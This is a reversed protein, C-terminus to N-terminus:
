TWIQIYDFLLCMFFSSSFFNFSKHMYLLISQSQCKAIRQLFYNPLIEHGYPPCQNKCTHLPLSLTPRKPFDNISVFFTTSSSPYFYSTEKNLLCPITGDVFLCFVKGRRLEALLDSHCNVTVQSQLVPWKWSEKKLMFLFLSFFSNSSTLSAM